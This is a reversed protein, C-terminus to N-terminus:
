MEGRLTLHVMNVRKDRTTRDRWVFDLETLQKLMRSVVAKSVGLLRVIKWQPVGDEPYLGIIRMMDFRAPTLEAEAAIPKMTEVARLYTRKISFMMPDMDAALACGMGGRGAAGRGAGAGGRGGWGRSRGFAM